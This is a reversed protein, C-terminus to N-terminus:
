DVLCSDFLSVVPQLEFGVGRGVLVYANVSVPNERSVDNHVFNLLFDVQGFKSAISRSWEEIEPRSRLSCYLPLMVGRPPEMSGAAHFQTLYSAAFSEM